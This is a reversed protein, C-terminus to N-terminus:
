ACPLAARFLEGGGIVMIEEADGALSLAEELSKARAIGPGAFAANRTVVINKRGPLARGIADYTRRGMVIPKGMTTRKFHALDAPLRWPMGGARGIVDNRAAAVVLSVQAM